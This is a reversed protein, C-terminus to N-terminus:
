SPSILDGHTKIIPLIPTPDSVIIPCHNKFLLTVQSIQQLFYNNCQLIFTDNLELLSIM